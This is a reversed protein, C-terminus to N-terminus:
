TMTHCAVPPIFAVPVSVSHWHSSKCCNTAPPDIPYSGMSLFINIVERRNQSPQDTPEDTARGTAPQSITKQRDDARIDREVARRTRTVVQLSLVGADRRNQRSDATYDRDRPALDSRFKSYKERGTATHNCGVSYTDFGGRGASSRLASVPRNTWTHNKRAVFTNAHSNEVMIAIQIM